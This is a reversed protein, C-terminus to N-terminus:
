TVALINNYVGKDVTIVVTTLLQNAIEPLGEQMWLFKM